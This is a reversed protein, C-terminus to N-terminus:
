PSDGCMMCGSEFARKLATQKGQLQSFMDQAETEEYTLAEGLDGADCAGGHPCEYLLWSFSWVNFVDAFTYM